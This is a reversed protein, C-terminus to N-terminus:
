QIRFFNFAAMRADKETDFYACGCQNYTCQEAFVHYVRGFTYSFTGNIRKTPKVVAAYIKGSYHERYTGLHTMDHARAYERIKGVKYLVDETM